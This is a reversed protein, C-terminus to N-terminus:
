GLLKALLEDQSRVLDAVLARAADRRRQMVEAHRRAERWQSDAAATEAVLARVRAEDADEDLAVLQLELIELEANARALRDHVDFLRREVRLRRDTLV